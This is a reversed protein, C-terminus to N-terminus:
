ILYFHSVAILIRLFVSHSFSFNSTALLKQKKWLTKLLNTGCVCLFLLTNPCLNVDVLGKGYFSLKRHGQLFLGRFVIHSLLFYLYVVNEAEEVTNELRHFVFNIKLTVNLKDDAFAKLKSLALIERTQHLTLRKVRDEREKFLYQNKEILSFNDIYSVFQLHYFLHM